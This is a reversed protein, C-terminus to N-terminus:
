CGSGWGRRGLRAKAARAQPRGGADRPVNRAANTGAWRGRGVLAENRSDTEPARRLWQAIMRFPTTIFGLRSLGLMAIAEFVLWRDADDISLLTRLKRFLRM